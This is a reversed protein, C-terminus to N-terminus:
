GARSCALTAAAAIDGQGPGRSPFVHVISVALVRERRPPAVPHRRADRTHLCGDTQEELADVVAEDALDGLGRRTLHIELVAEPPAPEEREAGPEEHVALEHADHRRRRGCRLRLRLRVADPEKATSSARARTALALRM